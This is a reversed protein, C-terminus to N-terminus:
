SLVHLDPLELESNVTFSHPVPHVRRIVAKMMIVAKVLEYRVSLNNMLIGYITLLFAYDRGLPQITTGSTLQLTVIKFGHM